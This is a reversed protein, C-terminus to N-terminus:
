AIKVRPQPSLANCFTGVDSVWGFFTEINFLAAQQAFAPGAQHTADELVVGFYELFFGDRLTSEVCVNTAIGTFVLHRIGRSRLISDLPTNFFGSYRPKPLVIDGDQPVLEDVLQYDWGGKALLKGQLEPRKRMTKLANSKHWNPSGPGGAEVYQEDWGNQFWIILMGAERAAAVATQIKEIVPATASVDFGALDLYGGKTAYANQMDVVILASQAPDFRLSDPRADLTIM